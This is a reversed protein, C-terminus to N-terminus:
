PEPAGEPRGISELAPYGKWKGDNAQLGIWIAVVWFLFAVPSGFGCTISSVIMTLVLAIGHFVTAQLAHYAVFPSQDKKILWIIGPGVFSTLCGLLHAILALTRDSQPVEDM